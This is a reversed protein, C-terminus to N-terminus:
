RPRLRRGARLKKKANARREDVEDDAVDRYRGGDSRGFARRAERDGVRYPERVLAEIGFLGSRM